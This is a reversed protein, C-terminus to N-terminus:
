RALEEALAEIQARTEDNVAGKVTVVNECIDIDKMAELQSRMVKAAMPAWSGAEVLAVRRNQYAHEALTHLFTSMHPFISGAYTISALVLRDYRFANEVAESMDDRALDFVSVEQGRAKLADALELAAQRTNGYVSSYAITM